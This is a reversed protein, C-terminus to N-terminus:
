EESDCFPRIQVEMMNPDSDAKKVKRIAKIMASQEDVASVQGSFLVEKDIKLLVGSTEHRVEIDETALVDYVVETRTESM